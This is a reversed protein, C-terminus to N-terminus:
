CHSNNRTVADINKGVENSPEKVYQFCENVLAKWIEM